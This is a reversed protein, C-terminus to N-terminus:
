ITNITVGLTGSVNHLASNQATTLSINASALNYATNESKPHEKCPLSVPSNYQDLYKAWYAVSEAQNRKELWGIYDSYKKVPPLLAANGTRNQAYLDKFDNWIIASCWGDM